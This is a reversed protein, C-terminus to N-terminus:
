LYGDPCQGTSALLDFLHGDQGLNACVPVATPSFLHIRVITLPMGGPAGAGTHSAGAFDVSGTVGQYPSSEIERPVSAAPLPAGNDKECNQEAQIFVMAALHELFARVALFQVEDAPM